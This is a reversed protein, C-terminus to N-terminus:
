ESDWKLLPRLLVTPTSLFVRPDRCDVKEYIMLLDITMDNLLKFDDRSLLRKCLYYVHALGYAPLLLSGFEPIDLYNSILGKNESIVIKFTYTALPKESPERDIIPSLPGGLPFMAAAMINEETSLTRHLVAIFDKWHADGFFVYLPGRGGSDSDVMGIMEARTVADCLENKTMGKETAIDEPSKGEAMATGLEETTM